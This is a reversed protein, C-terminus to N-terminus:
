RRTQSLKTYYHVRLSNTSRRPFYHEQIEQWSMGREEKLELLLKDDNITYRTRMSHVPTTKQKSKNPYRLHFSRVADQANELYDAPV